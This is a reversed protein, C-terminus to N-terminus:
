QLSCAWHTRIVPGEDETPTLPSSAPHTHALMHTQMQLHSPCVGLQSTAKESILLLGVQDLPPGQPSHNGFESATFTDDRCLAANM